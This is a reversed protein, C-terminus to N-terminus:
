RSAVQSIFEKLEDLLHALKEGEKKRAAAELERGLRTVEPFGYSAGSGKMRHGIQSVREYDDLNLAAALQAHRDRLSEVYIHRLSEMEKQIELDFRDIAQTSWGVGRGRRSLHRQICKVFQRKNIPKTIYDNCGARKCKEADGVMAYATLAIVPLDRFREQQRIRRTAEFGDMTPMQMDMLVLDFEAVELANLAERGNEVVTVEYGLRTLIKQFLRWNMENDEALLIRPASRDSSRGTRPEEEEKGETESETLDKNEECEDADPCGQGPAACRLPLYIIFESGEGVASKVVISGGMLEVLRKTIALGLGTGEHERTTSGDVQTFTDFIRRQAEAPIGIGTDRVSIELPFCARPANRISSRCVRVDIRGQDTFKAANSLLNLVIQGIRREDGLMVEPVDEAVELHLSVAKEALRPEVVRIKNKLVQRLKFPKRELDLGQTEIKSLDLIENILGLLYNASSEIVKVFERQESTLKEEMLLEAYGIIGNLPTRIEHSMNALFESKARNAAESAEKAKQLEAENKRLARENAVLQRNSAVLQQFAASLQQKSAILEQNLARLEAETNRRDTIDRIVGEHYLPRGDEDYVTRGHDEVWLEEGNKKKLRFVLTDHNNERTLPSLAQKREEPSFYLDHPIDLAMVEEESDYGLMQVFAPNVMLFRGEPTSRYIGDPIQEVLQRYKKESEQLARTRELVQRELTENSEKLRRTLEQNQVILHHREDAQRVVQVLDDVDLPKKLYRWVLGSNMAELIAESDTYGSFLINVSNPALHRAAHLFQLGTMRPMRQDTLIIHVPKEKLIRLAQRGTEVAYVRYDRSLAARIMELIEAENDM